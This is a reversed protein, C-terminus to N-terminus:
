YAEGIAFHLGLPFNDEEGPPPGGEEPELYKYGLRQLYPVRVGIDFRVIGVPTFGRVGVGPCIHLHTFRYDSLTRVVDSSDIFTVFGVDDGIPVRLEASLEWLGLGGTPLLEDSQGRQSFFALIEHPGVDRFGYGRNSNPGGSFFGRYSILQQDRARESEDTGAAFLSQGYNRPFLFGTGWRLALTINKTIPAYGRIDPRLRVDEADGFHAVQTNVSFYVGSHPRVPDPKGDAGKRFDWALINEIYPIVVPEFGDPPDEQNYSFPNDFQTRVFFAGYITNGGLFAFHVNRELGVYGSVEHYGVINFIESVFEEYTPPPEGLAEREDILEQPVEEPVPLTRPRYIRGSTGILLNTRSEPFAPQKFDLRL